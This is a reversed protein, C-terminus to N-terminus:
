KFYSHEGMGAARRQLDDGVVDTGAAEGDDVPHHRAVLAAAVHQAPDNPAPVMALRTAPVPITWTSSGVPTTLM